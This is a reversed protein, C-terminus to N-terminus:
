GNWGRVDHSFLVIEDQQVLVSEQVFLRVELQTVAEELLFDLHVLSSTSEFLESAYVSRSCLIDTGPSYVDFDIRGPGCKPLKKLRVGAIYRGADLRVYPGYSLHGVRGDSSLAGNPGPVGVATPLVSGSFRFFKAM